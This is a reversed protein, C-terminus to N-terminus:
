VAGLTGALPGTRDASAATDDVPPPDVTPTPGATTTTPAPEYAM